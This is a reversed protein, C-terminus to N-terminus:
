VSPLDKDATEWNRMRKDNAIFFTSLRPFLRPLVDLTWRMRKPIFIQTKSREVAKIIDAVVRDKKIIPVLPMKGIGDIMRTQVMTPHVSTVTVSTKKLEFELSKTFGLVGHKSACYAAAGPVSSVGAISSMNVIHAAPRDLLHPLAAHTVAMLGTLNVAITQEWRAFDAEGYPGSPAIGANNILIDFGLGKATQIASAAEVTERAVKTDSMDGRLAYYDGGAVEVRSQTESQTELSLDCGIISCGRQAFAVALAQGIGRSAGTIFVTKNEINM